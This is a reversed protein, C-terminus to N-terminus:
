NLTIEVTMTYSDNQSLCNPIRQSLTGMTLNEICNKFYMDIYINYNNLVSASNMFTCNRQPKQAYGQSNESKLNRYPNRLGYPLPMHNERPKGGNEKVTYLLQVTSIHLLNHSSPSICLLNRSNSFFQFILAFSHLHSHISLLFGRFVKTQIEDM